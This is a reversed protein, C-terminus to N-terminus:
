DFRTLVIEYFESVEDTELDWNHKSALDVELFTVLEAKSSMGEIRKLTDEFKSNDGNFLSQVFMFKQNVSISERLNVRSLKKLADGVTESIRNSHEENITSFLSQQNVSATSIPEGSSFLDTVQLPLVESFEKLYIKSDEPDGAFDAFAGDLIAHAEQTSFSNKGTQEFRATLAQYFPSNIKIYKGADKIRRMSIEKKEGGTVETMFFDYPAFLIKITKLTADKLLPKFNERDVLINKSLINLFQVLSKRVEESNYDFYPSQLKQSEKKWTTFLVWIVFLNIQKINTLSLIQSGNIRPEKSFFRDCIIKSFKESYTTASNLNLKSEMTIINEKTFNTM